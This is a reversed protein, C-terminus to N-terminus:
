KTYRYIMYFNYASLDRTTTVVAATKTVMISTNTNGTLNQSETSGYLVGDWAIVHSASFPHSVTKTGSKPLAGCSVLMTYVPAGDHRQLTRYEVGAAMPPNLYEWPLWQDQFSRVCIEGKGPSGQPNFAVQVVQANYRKMVLAVGYKFPANACESSFSVWGCATEEDLDTTHRGGAGLGLDNMFGLTVADASAVPSGLASIRNGAMDVPVYFRFDRAGWDLVPKSVFRRQATIGEPNLSDTVAAQFTYRLQYDLGTVEALADYDFGNLTVSDFPFWESYNGSGGRYRYKMSFINSKKGLSGDFVKGTIHLSLNGNATPMGNEIQVTPNFYAIITNVAAHVTTKDRSDTVRITIPNNTVPALTGDGALTVDGHVVSIGDSPITAYKQAAANVTVSATSHMAILVSKDGTIAITKDNTDVIVPSVVPDASVIHMKGDASNIGTSDGMVTKICFKVSLIDSDPSAARLRNREAETLTFQYRKETKPIDRYSIDASQGDLSICAQLTDVSNGAPNSYTIVPDSEDTFDEASLISAYRAITDLAVTASGNVSTGEVTTGGPGKIKGYLYCAGTGDANHGVTTEVTAVSVWESGVHSYYSISVTKAGVTLSGTWTGMTTYGNPKCIQLQATVASANENTSKSASSWLIRGALSGSGSKELTITGNAM